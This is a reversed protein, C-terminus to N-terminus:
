PYSRIERGDTGTKTTALVDGTSSVIDGRIIREAFADQRKNYPSNIFAESKGTQFYVFYAIMGLFITLFLYTVVAFERNRATNDYPQIQDEKQFRAIDKKRRKEELEELSRGM